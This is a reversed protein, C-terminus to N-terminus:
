IRILSILSRMLSSTNSSPHVCCTASPVRPGISLWGLEVDARGARFKQLDKEKLRAYVVQRADFFDEKDVLRVTLCALGEALFFVLAFM